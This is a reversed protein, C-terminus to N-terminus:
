ECVGIKDPVAECIVDNGAIPAINVYSSSVNFIYTLAGGIGPIELDQNGNYMRVGPVSGAKIEYRNGEGNSILSVIFGEIEVNKEGRQIMISTHTSNYCTYREDAIMIQERLDYCTKTKDLDGRIMPIVFAYIISVASVTLMILLVTVIVTSLGKKSNRLSNKSTLKKEGRKKM